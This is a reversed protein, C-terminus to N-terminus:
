GGPKYSLITGYIQVNKLRILGLFGFWGSNKWDRLAPSGEMGFSYILEM